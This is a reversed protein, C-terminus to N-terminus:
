NTPNSSLQCLSNINRIKGSRRSARTRWMHKTTFILCLPLGVPNPLLRTQFPFSLDCHLFQSCCFNPPTWAPAHVANRKAKEASPSSSCLRSRWCLYIKPDTKTDKRLIMHFDGVQKELINAKANLTAKANWSRCTRIGLFLRSTFLWKLNNTKWKEIIRKESTEQTWSPFLAMSLM